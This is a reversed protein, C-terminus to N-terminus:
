GRLSNVLTRTNVLQFSYSFVKYKELTIGQKQTFFWLFVDFSFFFPQFSGFNIKLPMQSRVAGSLQDFFVVYKSDFNLSLAIGSVWTKPAFFSAHCFYTKANKSDKVPPKLVIKVSFLM